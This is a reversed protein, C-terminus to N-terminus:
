LCYAKIDFCWRYCVSGCYCVTEGITTDAGKSQHSGFTPNTDGTSSERVTWNAVILKGLYYSAGTHLFWVHGNGRADIEVTNVIGIHPPNSFLVVDGPTLGNATTSTTYGSTTRWANELATANAHSGRSFEHFGALNYADIVNLTSVYNSYPTAMYCTSQISTSLNKLLTRGYKGTGGIMSEMIKHEWGIVTGCSGRPGGAGHAIDCRTSDDCPEILVSTPEEDVCYQESPPPPNDQQPPPTITSTIGAPQTPAAAQTPTPTVNTFEFTGQKQSPLYWDSQAQTLRALSFGVLTTILGFTIAAFALILFRIFELNSNRDFSNKNM